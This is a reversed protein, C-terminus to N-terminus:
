IGFLLTHMNPSSMNHIYLSDRKLAIKGCVHLLLWLCRKNKKREFGQNYALTLTQLLIIIIKILTGCLAGWMVDDM